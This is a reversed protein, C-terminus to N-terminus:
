RRKGRGYADIFDIWGFRVEQHKWNQNAITNIIAAVRGVVKGDKYALFKALHCYKAMPNKDESLSAIEDLYLGPVYFPCDKYLSLPFKVFAKLDAKTAVPKVTVSM